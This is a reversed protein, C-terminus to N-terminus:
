KNIKQFEAFLFLPFEKSKNIGDYGSPETLEILNFGCNLITNIYKGLPRHYHITTGWFENNFNYESLYREMVKYKFVGKEDERWVADYFAPHVISMYFIACPKTIRHIENVTGNLNEIDMLVQNCFVIDFSNDAYPLGNDINVQDFHSHPYNKRAISIMRKSGDCGLSNAGVSRFYDTYVGYGCGLDLIKEGNLHPFRKKVTEKNANVYESKEQKLFYLKAAKDWLNINESSM